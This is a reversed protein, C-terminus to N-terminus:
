GQGTKLITGVRVCGHEWFPGLLAQGVGRRRLSEKVTVEEVWSVRGNAYFTNHDFGLCYGVVEDDVEAVSLNAGDASLINSLVTEFASREPVFSMAFGKALAFLVNADDQSARRISVILQQAAM